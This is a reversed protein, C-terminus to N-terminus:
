LLGGSRVDPQAWGQALNLWGMTRDRWHMERRRAPTTALGLLVGTVTAALTDADVDPALVAQVQRRYTTIREAAHPRVHALALLHAVLNAPDDAAAGRGAGDVDLVGSVTGRDVLLQGQYLDGHVTVDPPAGRDHAAAVLADIQAAAAPAAQRLLGGYWAAGAPTPHDDDPLRVARVSALVDAIAGAPPLDGGDVLLRTLPTGPLAELVLVGLTASWGLCRPVPVHTAFAEHRARLAAAEGPRVVKLYLQRQPTRVRLVARRLPRYVLPEVKAATIAVGLRRLTAAVAQAGATHRLGPLCPDHPYRWVGIRNGEVSQVVAVADPLGSPDILAGLTETREVGHLWRVRAAYRVVLRRGPDLHVRTPRLSRLQGGAAAVAPALVATAGRGLLEGAGALPRDDM